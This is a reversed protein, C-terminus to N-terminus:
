RHPRVIDTVLVLTGIGWGVMVLLGIWRVFGIGLLPDALSQTTVVSLPTVGTPLSLFTDRAPQWIPDIRGTSVMFVTGPILSIALLGFPYALLITTARGGYRASLVMGVVSLTALGAATGVVVVGATSLWFWAAGTTVVALVGALGVIRAFGLHEGADSIGRVAYRIPTGILALVYAGAVIPLGLLWWGRYELRGILTRPRWKGLVSQDTQRPFLLGMWREILRTVDAQASRITETDPSNTVPRGPSQM